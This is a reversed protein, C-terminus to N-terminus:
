AAMSIVLKIALILSGGMVIVPLAFICMLRYANPYKYAAFALGSAVAVILPILVAM